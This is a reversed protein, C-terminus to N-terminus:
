FYLTDLYLIIFRSIARCSNLNDEIARRKIFSSALNLLHLSKNLTVSSIHLFSSALDRNGSGCEKVEQWKWVVHQMFIFNMERLFRTTDIGNEVVMIHVASLICIVYRSDLGAVYGENQWHCCRSAHFIVRDSSLHVLFMCCFTPLLQPELVWGSNNPCVPILLHTEYYRVFGETLKGLSSRHKRIRHRGPPIRLNGVLRIGKEM